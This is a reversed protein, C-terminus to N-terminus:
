RSSVLLLQDVATLVSFHGDPPDVTDQLHSSAVAAFFDFLLSKRITFLIKITLCVDAVQDAEDLVM